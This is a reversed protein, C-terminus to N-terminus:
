KLGTAVKFITGNSNDGPSVSGGKATLGYFNGDIAEILSLPDCGDSACNLTETFSNKKKTLIGFVQGDYNAGNAILGYLNGDSGPVLLTPPLASEPTKQLMKYKGASTIEFVGTNTDCCSVGYVTGNTSQVLANVRDLKPFTRLVTYEGATTLRFVSEKFKTFSLPAEVGYLNGDTGAVLEEGLQGSPFNYFQSWAGDPTLRFVFSTTSGSNIGYFNGDGALVVPFAQDPCGPLSCFNYLVQQSGATTISYFVGDGQSGGEVTIGYLKGDPGAVFSIAPLSGNLYQGSGNPEFTYLTNVEGSTTAQWVTGLGTSTSGYWTTGYFNGDALQIPGLAPQFGDPCLSYDSNCYFAFVQSIPPTSPTQAVVSITFACFALCVTLPKM